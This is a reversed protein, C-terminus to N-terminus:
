KFHMGTSMEQTPSAAIRSVKFKGGNEKVLDRNKKNLSLVNEKSSIVERNDAAVHPLPDRRRYSPAYPSRRRNSHAYGRLVDNLLLIRGHINKELTSSTRAIKFIQANIECSHATFDCFICILPHPDFLEALGFKRLRKEAQPPCRNSFIRIIACTRESPRLKGQVTLPCKKSQPSSSPHFSYVNQFSFSIDVFVSKSHHTFHM